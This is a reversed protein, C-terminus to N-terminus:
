KGPKVRITFEVFKDKPSRGSYYNFVGGCRPCKLRRVDYFQFRWRRGEEFGGEFGCFPCKVMTM